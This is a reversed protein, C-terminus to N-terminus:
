RAKWDSKACEWEIMTQQWARYFAAGCEKVLVSVFAWPLVIVVGVVILPRRKFRPLDLLRSM